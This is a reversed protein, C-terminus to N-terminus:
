FLSPEEGSAAIHHEFAARAEDLTVYTCGGGSYLDISRRSVSWAVPGYKDAKHCPERFTIERLTVIFPKDSGYAHATNDCFRVDVIKADRTDAPVIDAIYRRKREPSM